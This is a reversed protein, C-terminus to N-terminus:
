RGVGRRRKLLEQEVEAVPRTYHLRSRELEAQAQAQAAPDLARVPRPALTSFVFPRSPAGLLLLCAAVHRDPLDELDRVRLEPKVYLAMREADPVGLRFLLLSGVNGLIADVLGGSM